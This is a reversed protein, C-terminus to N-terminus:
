TWAFKYNFLQQCFEVDGMRGLYWGEAAPGVAGPENVLDYAFVAQSEACTRAISVGIREAM